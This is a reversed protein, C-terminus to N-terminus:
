PRRGGGGRSQRRVPSGRVPRLGHVWTGPALQAEELRVREEEGRDDAHERDGRESARRLRLPEGLDVDLPDVDHLRVALQAEDDRVARAGDPRDVLSLREAVRAARARPEDEEVVLPRLVPAEGEGPAAAGVPLVGRRGPHREVLEVLILDHRELVGVVVARAAHPEGDGVAVVAVDVVDHLRAVRTAAFGSVARRLAASRCSM